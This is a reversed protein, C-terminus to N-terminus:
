NLPVMQLVLTGELVANLANPDGSPSSIMSSIIKLIAHESPRDCCSTITVLYANVIKVSKRPNPLSEKYFDLHRDRPLLFSILQFCM